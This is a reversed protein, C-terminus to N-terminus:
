TKPKNTRRRTRVPRSFGEHSFFILGDMRKSLIGVQSLCVSLCVSLCLRVSVPGYSTGASAYHTSRTESYRLQSDIWYSNTETYYRVVALSLNHSTTQELCQWKYGALKLPTQRSKSSVTSSLSFISCYHTCHKIRRQVNSSTFCSTV